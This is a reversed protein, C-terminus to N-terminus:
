PPRRTTSRRRRPSRNVAYLSCRHDASDAILAQLQQPCSGCSSPTSPASPRSTPSRSSTTSCTSSPSSRRTSPRVSFLCAGLETLRSLKPAVSATTWSAPSARRVQLDQGEQGASIQDVWADVAAADRSPAPLTKRADAVLAALSSSMAYTRSRVALQLLPTRPLRHVLLATM